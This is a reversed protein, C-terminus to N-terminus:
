HDENIKAIKKNNYDWVYKINFNGCEINYLIIQDWIRYIYNSSLNYQIRIVVVIIINM